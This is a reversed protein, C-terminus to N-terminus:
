RQPQAADSAGPAADRRRRRREGGADPASKASDKAADAAGPDPDAIRVKAGDSLRSFGSTVVTEGGTVGQTVVAVREDQRGTSVLRLTAKDHEDNLVYVFPGNPGRQVATSPVVVAQKITDVVLRVNSFQGPWLVFDKNAFVAKIKATGTTPDIQNDIVEVTGTDLVSVNDPGLALAETAGGRAQAKQVAPLAQQPITFVVYIPQLQNILVIGSQDSAHLINGEDVLKVGARGDIPSHITAYDLTTRTNDIAAQDARVQAELQAVLAKQTAYQQQSAYNGAVLKLYRTLDIRANALNAEDQAKKAVAQDYQAKYLSPDIEAVIDGKKVDQGEHAALKILRGDVQTRLVVSNYAQVTGVAEISVPVDAIEAAAISISVPLDGRRKERKSYGGNPGDDESGGGAGYRVVVAIAVLAALAGAAILLRKRSPSTLAAKM